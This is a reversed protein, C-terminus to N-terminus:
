VLALLDEHIQPWPQALNITQVGVKRGKPDYFWHSHEKAVAPYLLFAIVEDKTELIERPLNNLYAFIQYLHESRFSVKHHEQFLSPTYKCDIVVIKNDSKLTIDTNMTPLLRESDKSLSTLRWLIQEGGIKSYKDSAHKRYFNKVFSEFLYRMQQEDRLFDRFVYKGSDETILLNRHVIECICMLFEYFHNNRNLRVDGFLKETVRITDIGMMHRLIGILDNANRRDIGKTAILTAITTKLIRNHLINYSMEDYVCPLMGKTHVDGNAAAGFAIRGSLRTKWEMRNCYGRDLGRKLLIRTGNILVKAFLNVLDTSPTSEVDVMDREALKNWAYCLLYYINYIPIDPM